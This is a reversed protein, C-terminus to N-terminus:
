PLNTIGAVTFAEAQEQLAEGTSRLAFEKCDAKTYPRSLRQANMPGSYLRRCSAAPGSLPSVSYLLPLM